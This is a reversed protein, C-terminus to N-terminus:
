TAFFGSPVSIGIGFNLATDANREDITVTTNFSEATSHMRKIERIKVHYPKAERVYELVDEESDRQYVAYQKLDRNYLNLDIYSTKFLWSPYTKETWLYKIMTFFIDNIFSVDPYDEILNMLEHIQIGVANNYYTDHGTEPFVLNDFSVNLM